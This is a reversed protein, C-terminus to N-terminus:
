RESWHRISRIADDYYGCAVVENGHGGVGNSDTCAVGEIVSECWIFKM